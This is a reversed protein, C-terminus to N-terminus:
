LDFADQSPGHASSDLSNFGCDIVDDRGDRWGFAAVVEPAGGRFGASRQGIDPASRVLKVNTPTSATMADEISIISLKRSDHRRGKRWDHDYACQHECRGSPANGVCRYCSPGRYWARSWTQPCPSRNGRPRFGCGSAHCDSDFKDFEIFSDPDLLKSIRERASYKGQEHQKNIREVGGGLEAQQSLTSLQERKQESTLM